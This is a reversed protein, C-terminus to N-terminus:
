GKPGFQLSISRIQGACWHGPKGNFCWEIQVCLKMMITPIRWGVNLWSSEQRWHKMPKRSASTAGCSWRRFCLPLPLDWTARANRSLVNLGYIFWWGAVLSRFDGLCVYWVHSFQCAVDAAVMQLFPLGRADNLMYLLCNLPHRSVAKGSTRWHMNAGSM